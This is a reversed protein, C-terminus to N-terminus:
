HSQFLQLSNEFLEDAENKLTILGPMSLIPDGESLPYSSSTVGELRFLSKNSPEADKQYGVYWSNSVSDRDFQLNIYNGSPEQSKTILISFIQRAKLIKNNFDSPPVFLRVDFKLGNGTGNTKSDSLEYEGLFGSVYASVNKNGDKKAQRVTDMINNALKSMIGDEYASLSNEQSKRARTQTHADTVGVGVGLALMLSAVGAAGTRRLDRQSLREAM